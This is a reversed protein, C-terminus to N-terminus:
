RVLLDLVARRATAAARELDTSYGARLMSLRLGDLLALITAAAHKENPAEWCYEENGRRIMEALAAREKAEFQAIKELGPGPGTRANVQTVFCWAHLIDPQAYLASVWARIQERPDGGAITLAQDRGGEICTLAHDVAAELLGDRSGFHYLILSKPTASTAALNGITAGDLGREAAVMLTAGLVAERRREGKTSRRRRATSAEQESM